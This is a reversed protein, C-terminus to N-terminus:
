KGHVQIEIYHNSKDASNGQSYFRIYQGKTGKLDITKGYFEEIYNKDTGKGLGSSNDHDNNFVTKVGEIFDADDSVQIIVDYYVRPQSHYHWLHAAFLNKSDELDIQIWQLGKKLQVYESGDADADTIMDLDGVGPDEDSSTVEKDEALNKCGKPVELLAPATGKARSKELNPISKPVETGKVLKEPYEIKLKVKDGAAYATIVALVLLSLYLSVRKM